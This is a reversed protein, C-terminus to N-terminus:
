KEIHKETLMFGIKCNVRRLYTRDRPMNLFSIILENNVHSTDQRWSICRVEGNAGSQVQKLVTFRQREWMGAMHIDALKAFAPIGM